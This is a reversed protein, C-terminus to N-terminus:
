CRERVCIRGRARARGDVRGIVGVPLRQPGLGPRPPRTLRHATGLVAQRREVARRLLEGAAAGAKLARAEAPLRVRPARGQPVLMRVGRLARRPAQTPSRRPPAAQPTRARLGHSRRLGGVGRRAPAAFTWSIPSHAGSESTRSQRAPHVDSLQTSPPHQAVNPRAPFSSPGGRPVARAHSALRRRGVRGPGQSGLVMPASLSLKETRFPFLHKGRAMAVPIPSLVGGGSGEFGCLLWM